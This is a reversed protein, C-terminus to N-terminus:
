PDMSFLSVNGGSLYARVVMEGNANVGRDQGATGPIPTLVDFRRVRPTTNSDLTVVPPEGESQLLTVWSTDAIFIGKRIAPSKRLPRYKATFSIIGDNSLALQDFGV